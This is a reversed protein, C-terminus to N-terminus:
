SQVVSTPDVSIEYRVEGIGDPQETIEVMQDNGQQRNLREALVLAVGLTERLQHSHQQAQGRPMDDTTRITDALDRADAALAELQGCLTPDDDDMPPPPSLPSPVPSSSRGRVRPTQASDSPRPDDHDAASGRALTISYFPPKREVPIVHETALRFTTEGYMQRVELIYGDDGVMAAEVVLQSGEQVTAPLGVERPDIDLRVLDGRTYTHKPVPM